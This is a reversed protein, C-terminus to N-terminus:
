CAACELPSIRELWAVGRDTHADIWCLRGPDQWILHIELDAPPLLPGAREPWEILVGQGDLMDRFGLFELEEPDSLRYLDLHSVTKKKSLAYHECLTYTPSPIADKVGLKKLFARVLHSKGAGLEGTLTVLFPVGPCSKALAKALKRTSEETPLSVRMMLDLQESEPLTGAM